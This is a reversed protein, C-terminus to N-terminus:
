VNGHHCLERNITDFQLIMQARSHEELSRYNEIKQQPYKEHFNELQIIVWLLLESFVIFFDGRIDDNGYILGNAWVKKHLEIFNNKAQMAVYELNILEEM